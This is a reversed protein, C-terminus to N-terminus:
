QAQIMQRHPWRAIRDVSEMRARMGRFYEHLKKTTISDRIATLRVQLEATDKTGSRDGLQKEMWAWLNECQHCILHTPPGHCSSGERCAQLLALWTKRQRILQLMTKSYSGIGWGIVLQSSCGTARQSSITNCCMMISRQGSERQTKPNNYRDLHKHTGTVFRLTTVHKCFMGMYVHVGDNHKPKGVTGRTAPTCWRGSPRGMGHLRSISSDTILVCCFSTRLAAKAFQLRTARHKATLIPM